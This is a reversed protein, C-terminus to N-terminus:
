PALGVEVRAETQTVDKLSWMARRVSRRYTDFLRLPARRDTTARLMAHVVTGGFGEELWWEAHGDFDGKVEIWLGLGPRVSHPRAVIRVSRRYPSLSELRLDFREYNRELPADPLRRVQAGPWWTPYSPVDVLRAFVSEIPARVFSDDDLHLDM